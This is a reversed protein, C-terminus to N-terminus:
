QVWIEKADISMNWDRGGHVKIISGKHIYSFFTSWDMTEDRFSGDGLWVRHNIVTNSKVYVWNQRRDPDDGKIAVGIRQKARDVHTVQYESTVLILQAQAATAVLLFLATVALLGVLLKNRM